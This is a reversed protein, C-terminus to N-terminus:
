ARVEKPDCAEACRRDMELFAEPQTNAEYLGHVLLKDGDIDVVVTGPTMTISNAFTVRGLDTRCKTRIKTLTPVVDLDARLCAKVVVWNSKVVEVALWPYYRMLAPLRVYPAGERDVTGLRRALVMTLVVSVAGFFLMLPKYHGSNGLWFAVIAALLAFFYAM